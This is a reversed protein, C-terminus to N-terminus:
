PSGSTGTRASDGHDPPLPQHALSKPIRPLTFSLAPFPLTPPPLDGRKPAAYKSPIPTSGPWSISLSSGFPETIEKQSVVSSKQASSHKPFNDTNTFCVTFLCVLPLVHPCQNTSLHVLRALCFLLQILTITACIFSPYIEPFTHINYLCLRLLSHLRAGPERPNLPLEMEWLVQVLWPVGSCRLNRRHFIPM